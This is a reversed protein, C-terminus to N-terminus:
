IPLYVLEVFLSFFEKSLVLILLIELTEDLLCVVPQAWQMFVAGFMLGQVGWHRYFLLRHNWLRSEQILVVECGLDM